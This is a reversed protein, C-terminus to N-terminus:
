AVVVSAGSDILDQLSDVSGTAMGDLKISGGGNFDLVVRGGSESVQLRGDSELALLDDIDADLDSDIDVVDTFVLRDGEAISFDFIRDAGQGTVQTGGFNFSLSFEFSDSDGGGYLRDNGEGGVLSDDGAHGYLRDNGIGGNLGDDGARGYLRDNGSGGLLTDNGGKGDLRTATTLGSADLFDDGNHGYANESM